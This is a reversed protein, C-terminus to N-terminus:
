SKNKPICFRFSHYGLIMHGEYDRMCGCCCFYRSQGNTPSWTLCYPVATAEKGCGDCVFEFPEMEVNREFAPGM